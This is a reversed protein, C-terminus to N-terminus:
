TSIEIREFSNEWYAQGDWVHSFHHMQAIPVFRKARSAALLRLWQPDEPTQVAYGITQINSPLSAAAEDRSASHLTLFLPSDIDQEGNEGIGIVAANRPAIDANWGLASAWQKAMVNTSALHMAVDRRVALPWRTQMRRRLDYLDNVQSDLLVVRRPSTCGGRGYIAFVKILTDITADNVQSTELWAESVHDSFGVGIGAPPHPLSEISSVANDSGFVIRMQATGAWQRNLPDQRDFRHVTVHQQVHHKLAGERVHSYLYEVFQATLDNGSVSAKLRIKNGTLCLLILSLPGLLSVNKPLWVAITGRPRYLTRCTVANSAAEGFVDSFVGRLRCDEIFGILYAWEDRTFAKDMEALMTKRLAAFDAFIEELQFPLAVAAGDMRRRFYHLVESM